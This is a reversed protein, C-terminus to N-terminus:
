TTHKAAREASFEGDFQSKSRQRVGVARRIGIERRRQDVAALTVTMVGLGGALLAAAGITAFIAALTGSLEPPKKGRWLKAFNAVVSLSDFEVRIRSPQGRVVM